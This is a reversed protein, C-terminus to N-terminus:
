FQTEEAMIRSCNRLFNHLIPDQDIHKSAQRTIEKKITKLRIGHLMSGMDTAVKIEIIEGM